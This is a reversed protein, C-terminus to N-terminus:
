VIDFGGADNFADACGAAFCQLEHFTFILLMSAQLYPAATSNIINDPNNVQAKSETRTPTKACLRPRKPKPQLMTDSMSDGSIPKM